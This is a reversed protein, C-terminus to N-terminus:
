KGALCLLQGNELTVFVLGDHNVAMGGPVVTAPLGRTWAAEGTAVDVAAVFSRPKEPDGAEGAALIRQATVAFASFRRGSKDVWVSGERPGRRGLLNGWRSESMGPRNTGASLLTLPGHIAGEYSADYVLRRGDAFTHDLSRFKGYDPYYAYYATPFVSNTSDHPPNLCTGTRPDYRAIEHVGGGLFRLEGDRIYLEGQLSVGNKFQASTAGSSDNYWRVDGTVADLAYVHIGDYHHIGAAAYLVGDQVVVGGAVPWTSMLQGYVPIWRHAPAARFRWLPRGTAAEFAYVRGDGSGVFVRGQEVAPAGFLPGGTHAQWCLEGSAARWARLVGSRDGAYVFEGATVPATPIMGPTATASWRVVPSEPLAVASSFSRRNDGCYTLWDGGRVAVPQVDRLEDARYEIRSEDAGPRFNFGGAPALGIHGYASLQCGCMWPGWYLMGNAIVVGDQCPPRMPTIHEATNTETVIRVTGEAARFFVSDLSGTARTCARRQPLTALVNGSEYDLKWGSDGDQPGAAYFGDDRLVLQLNGGDRSWLLRGDSASVVVLRQRQPGAFLIYRDNCKIYTTTAYGTIYHQASGNPGIAELLDTATTRWRVQGSRPDLCSLSIEPCYFFIGGPGMCVGRSDVYDEEAHSWLLEKTRVDIAVLTRGFGFSTKPDRYDHGEWMGWPWHGLGRNPSRQTTIQQEEGGILAYLVGDRLAMWKWVPGDALGAPITIEDVTEGTAADIRQCSKDDALYLYEPTAIMTNRHIMFGESLPRRWLITGNYGSMCLLTNLWANQNSKHAIHGHARFVRGGASVTVVPMPSFLPEAMFQTLYPALSRRDASQPNNDPGHYPHSWDDTDAPLPKTMTQDPLVAQGGPRLVRLLEDRGVAQAAAASVLVRDVLDDALHVASLEGQDVFIARGLLGAKAAAERVAAVEEADSSQFYVTQSRVKALDVVADAGAGETLGLVTTVGPVFESEIPAEGSRSSTALLGTVSLALIFLWMGRWNRGHWRTM